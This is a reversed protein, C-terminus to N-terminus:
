PRSRTRRPSARAAVIAHYARRRPGLPQRSDMAWYRGIVTAVQGHAAELHPLVRALYGHGSRPPTDRGDLLAHLVPVVGRRKCAAILAILHDEHSHVGGDSVLGLLHLRGSGGAAVDLARALAPVSEPGSEEFVKSIRTMDQYRIRGAGMTM